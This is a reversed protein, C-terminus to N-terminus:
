AAHTTRRVRGCSSSCAILMADTNASCNPCKATKVARAIAADIRRAYARGRVNQRLVEITCGFWSMAIREGATTRKAM